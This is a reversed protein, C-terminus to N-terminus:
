QAPCRTGATVPICSFYMEYFHPSKLIVLEVGLLLKSRSGKKKLALKHRKQEKVACKQKSEQQKHVFELLKKSYTRLNSGKNGSKTLCKHISDSLQVNSHDWVGCVKITSINTGGGTWAASSPELDTYLQCVRKFYAATKWQWCQRRM